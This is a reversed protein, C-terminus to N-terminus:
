PFRIFLIVFIANNFLHTQKRRKKYKTNKVWVSRLFTEAGDKGGEKQIYM